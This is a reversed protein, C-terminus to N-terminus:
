FWGWMRGFREEQGTLPAFVHTEIEGNAVGVYVACVVSLAVIAVVIVSCLTDSCGKVVHAL